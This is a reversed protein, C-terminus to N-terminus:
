YIKIKFLGRITGRLLHLLYNLQHLDRAIENVKPHFIKSRLFPLIKYILNLNFDQHNLIVFRRMLSLKYDHLLKVNKEVDKTPYKNELIFM